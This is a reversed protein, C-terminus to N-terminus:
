FNSLTPLSPGFFDFSGTTLSFQVRFVIVQFEAPYFLSFSLRFHTLLSDIIGLYDRVFPGNKASQFDEMEQIIPTKRAMKQM